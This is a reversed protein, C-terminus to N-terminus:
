SATARRRYRGASLGGGRTTWARRAESNVQSKGELLDLSGAAACDGLARQWGTDGGGGRAGSDRRRWARGACCRGIALLPLAAMGYRTNYYSNPWLHPVFIPTGSSHMSWSTSCRRCRWCRLPWLARRCGSGRARRGRCDMGAAPGRLVECRRDPLLAMGQGLRSRGSLAGHRCRARAPLDGQGLVPRPLVRAPQRLVVLQAGAVSRGWAPSQASCRRPASGADGSRRGASFVADAFPILFWGEYRTLVRGGPRLARPRRRPGCRSRGASGCAHLLAAGGAGALFVPETM